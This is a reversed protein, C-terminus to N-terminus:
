AGERQGRQRFSLKDIHVTGGTSLHDGTDLFLDYDDNTFFHNDLPKPWAAASEVAAETEGTTSDM